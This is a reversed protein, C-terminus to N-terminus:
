KKALLLWISRCGDVVCKGKGLFREHILKGKLVSLPKAKVLLSALSSLLVKM